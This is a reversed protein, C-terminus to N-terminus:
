DLSSPSPPRPGQFTAPETAQVGHFGYRHRCPTIGASFVGDVFSLGQKRALIRPSIDDEDVIDPNAGEDILWNLLAVRHKVQDAPLFQSKFRGLILHLCARGFYDQKNPNAGLAILAYFKDRTITEPALESNVRLYISPDFGVELTLAEVEKQLAMRDVGAHAIKELNITWKYKDRKPTIPPMFFSTTTTGDTAEFFDSDDMIMRVPDTTRTSVAALVAVAEDLESESTDITVVGERGVAQMAQLIVTEIDDDSQPRPRVCTTGFLPFSSGSTARHQVISTGESRHGHQNTAVQLSGSLIHAEDEWTKRSVDPFLRRHLTLAKQLYDVANPIDNLAKYCDVIGRFYRLHEDSNIGGRQNLLESAKKYLQIAEEYKKAQLSLFARNNYAVPTHEHISYKSGLLSHALEISEHTTEDNVTQSNEASPSLQSYLHYLANYTEDAMVGATRTFSYAADTSSHSGPRHVSWAYRVQEEAHEKAERLLQAVIQIPIPQTQANLLRYADGARYKRAGHIVQVELDVM